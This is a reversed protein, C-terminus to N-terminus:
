PMAPFKRASCRTWRATSRHQRLISLLRLQFPSIRHFANWRILSRNGIRSNAAKHPDVLSPLQSIPIGNLIVVPDGQNFVSRPSTLEFVCASQARIIASGTWDRIGYDFGIRPRSHAASAHPEHTDNRGKGEWGGKGMRM